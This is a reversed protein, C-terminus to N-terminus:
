KVELHDLMTMWSLGTGVLKVWATATQFDMQDAVSVMKCSSIVMFSGRLDDIYMTFDAALQLIELLFIYYSVQLTSSPISLIPESNNNHHHMRNMFGILDLTNVRNIVLKGKEYYM